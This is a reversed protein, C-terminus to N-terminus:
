YVSGYWILRQLLLWGPPDQNPNGPASSQFLTRSGSRRVFVLLGLASQRITGVAGRGLASAAMPIDSSVSAANVTAGDGHFPDVYFEWQPTDLWLRTVVTRKSVMAGARPFADVYYVQQPTDLWLRTVVKEQLGDTNNLAAAAKQACNDVTGSTRAAAAAAVNAAGIARACQLANLAELV